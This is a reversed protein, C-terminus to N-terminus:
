PRPGTTRAKVLGSIAKFEVAEATECWEFLVAEATTIVAGSDRLRQLAFTKDTEFRSTIADAAVSVAFGAALLDLVTQQVCVHAEIGAVVIKPCDSDNVTRAWSFAAASSFRLKEPRDPILSRLPEITPGLGRPYQETASVPIGLTLAGRVLLECAQTVEAAASMATLLREQLDIILLRSDDRNLLQPSRHPLPASGTM